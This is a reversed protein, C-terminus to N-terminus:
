EVGVSKLFDNIWGHNYVRVDGYIPLTILKRWNEDGGDDCSELFHNVAENILNVDPSVLAHSCKKDIHIDYMIYRVNNDFDPAVDCAYSDNSGCTFRVQNPAIEIVSSKKMMRTDPDVTIVVWSPVQEYYLEYNQMKPRERSLDNLEEDWVFAGSIRPDTNDFIPVLEAYTPCNTPYDMKILTECTGSLRISIFQDNRGAMYMQHKLDEFEEELEILLERAEDLAEEKEEIVEKQGITKASQSNENAIKINYQREFELYEEKLLKAADMEDTTTAADYALRYEKKMKKLDSVMGKHENGALREIDEQELLKLRLEPLEDELKKIVEKTEKIEIKVRKMEENVADMAAERQNHINEYENTPNDEPDNNGFRKECSQTYCHPAGTPNGDKDEHRADADPTVM